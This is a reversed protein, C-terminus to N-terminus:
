RIDIAGVQLLKSQIIDSDFPKMIYENAGSSIAEQIKNFDNEETCFIVIPKDGKDLERLKKLFDIGTMVPMYWDLLVIDPLNGQCYEFAHQGNEAESVEFGFGEFIKRAVRRIIQSDDVILCSKM